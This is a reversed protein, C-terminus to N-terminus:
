PSRRSGRGVLVLGLVCNLSYLLAASGHLARFATTDVAGAARLAVIRPALAWGQVMVLLLMAALLRGRLSRWWSKGARRVLLAILVLASAVGLWDMWHLLEGAINGAQARDALRAFLVPAVLWGVACMSGVWLTEIVREAAARRDV